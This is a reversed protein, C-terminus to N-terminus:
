KKSGLGRQYDTLGTQDHYFELGPAFYAMFAALNRSNYASYMLSDLRGIIDYLEIPQFSIRHAKTDKGGQHLVLVDYGNRASKLFEFEASMTKMFLVNARKPYLPTKEANGVRQLFLKTNESFIKIRFSPEFEYTGFFQRASDRSMPIETNEMAGPTQAAALFAQMVLGLCAFFYKM